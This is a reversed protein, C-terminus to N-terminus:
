FFKIYIKNIIVDCHITENLSLLIMFFAYFNSYGENTCRQLNDMVLFNTRPLYCMNLKKTIEILYYAFTYLFM